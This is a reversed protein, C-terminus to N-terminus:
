HLFLVNHLGSQSDENYMGSIHKSHSLHIITFSPFIEGTENKLRRNESSKINGSVFFNHCELHNCPDIHCM